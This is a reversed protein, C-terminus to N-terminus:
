KKKLCEISSVGTKLVAGTRILDAIMSDLWHKMPRKIEAFGNSVPRYCDTKMKLYDGYTLPQDRIIMIQMQSDFNDICGAFIGEALLSYHGPELSHMYSVTSYLPCITGGGFVANDKAYETGNLSVRAMVMGFDGDLDKSNYRGGVSLNVVLISRFKIKLTRKFVARDPKLGSRMLLDDDKGWDIQSNGGTFAQYRIFKGDRLSEFHDINSPLELNRIDIGTPVGLVKLIGELTLQNWYNISIMVLISVLAMKLVSRFNFSKTEKSEKTVDENEM